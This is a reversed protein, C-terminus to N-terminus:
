QYQAQRKTYRQGNDNGRAAAGLLGAQARDGGGAAGRTRGLVLRRTGSLGRLRVRCLVRYGRVHLRLTQVNVVVHQLVGLDARRVGVPSHVIVLPELPHPVEDEQDVLRITRRGDDRRSVSLRQVRLCVPRRGVERVRLMWARCLTLKIGLGSTQSCSTPKDDVDM